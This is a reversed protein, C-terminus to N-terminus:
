RTPPTMSEPPRPTYRGGPLLADVAIGALLVVAVDWPTRFRTLGFSLLMTLFLAVLTSLVPWLSVRRRHLVVMGWAAFPLMVFYQITGTWRLWPDRDELLSNYAVNGSPSYADLARLFRIGVMRPYEDLHGRIYHLGRSRAQREVVSQDWEGPIGGDPDCAFTWLGAVQSDLDYTQDCSGLVLTFGSGVSLLTPEEFRTLNYIAWPAIVIVCATSGALLPLTRDRLSRGPGRFAGPLLILPVFLIGEARTLACAAAAVGFVIANRNSPKEWVNYAAWLMLTIVLAYMSESMLGVDNLWFNAYIAGLAAAILGARESALRRGLLGIAVVTAAGLLCSALLHQTASDAGFASFGALYVVYAPPHSGGPADIPPDISALFPEPFGRGDGVFNAQLHYYGADTQGVYTSGQVSGLREDLHDSAVFAVRFALAGLAIAALAFWFRRGARTM